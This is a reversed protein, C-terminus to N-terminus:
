LPLNPIQKEGYAKLLIYPKMLPNKFRYRHQNKSGLKQLIHGSTNKCFLDIHYQFTGVGIDRKTIEKLPKELETARFTGHEDEEVLACALLVTTFLTGPRSDMTAKHYAARTSEHAGDVADSVAKELDAPIVQNRGARIAHSFTHKSLLHTYHPFQKSLKIIKEIINESVHMGIKEIGKLIIERLEDETMRPLKIQELCREISRHGGILDEVTEAVGVVVVTIQPVTDSLAKILDAMLKKPRITEVRDFEDIVIVNWATLSRLLSVIKYPTLAEDSPAFDSLAFLTAQTKATFGIKDRQSSVKIESLVKRWLSNFTDSSDCLIKVVIIPNIPLDKIINALSTKGVGREGYIVVHKGKELVAVLTKNIQKERGAFFEKSDIPASPTFVSNVLTLKKYNIGLEGQQM